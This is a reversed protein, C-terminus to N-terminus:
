KVKHLSSFAGLALIIITAPEPIVSYVYDVRVNGSTIVPTVAYEIGGTSSYNLWQIVNCFINYTETGVFGKAGATWLTNAITGTKSNTEYHGNYVLGDPGSGEINYLGDGNDPELNFTQLHVAEVDGPVVAYSNNLLVVDTSYLNGKVGFSFGGSANKFSDNDLILRGGDSNLTLTIQVDQLIWSGSHDDFQSFTLPVSLNPIGSFNQIQSYVAGFVSVSSLVLVLVAMLSFRKVMKEREKLAM